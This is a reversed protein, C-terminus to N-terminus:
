CQQDGFITVQSMKLGVIMKPWKSGQFSKQTPNSLYSIKPRKSIEKRQAKWCYIVGGSKIFIWKKPMTSDNKPSASLLHLPDFFKQLPPYSSYVNHLCSYNSPKLLKAIFTSCVSLPVPVESIRAWSFNLIILRWRTDM